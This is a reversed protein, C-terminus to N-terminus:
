AILDPSAHAPLSAQKAKSAKAPHETALAAALQADIEAVTALRVKGAAALEQGLSPSLDLLSGAEVRQGAMSIARLVIYAPLAPKAHHNM